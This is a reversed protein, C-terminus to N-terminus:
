LGKNSRCLMNMRLILIILCWQESEPDSVDESSYFSYFSSSPNMTLIFQQALLGRETIQMSRSHDKYLQSYLSASCFLISTEANKKNIIKYLIPHWGGNVNANFLCLSVTSTHLQQANTNTLHIIMWRWLTESAKVQIRKVSSVTSVSINELILQSWMTESKMDSLTELLM